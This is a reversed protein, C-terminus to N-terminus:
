RMHADVLPMGTRGERWRWVNKMDLDNNKGKNKQAFIQDGVKM